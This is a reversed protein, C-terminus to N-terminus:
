KFANRIETFVVTLFAAVISVYTVYVSTETLTTEGTGFVGGNALNIIKVDHGNAIFFAAGVIVIILGLSLMTGRVGEPSKIMGFVACFLAVAVAFVFLMYTWILNISVSAESGGTAIAYVLLIVTVVLMIGLIVNLIKKM